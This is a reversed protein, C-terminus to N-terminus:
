PASWRRCPTCSLLRLEPLMPLSIRFRPPYALLSLRTPQATHDGHQYVLRRRTMPLTNRTKSVITSGPKNALIPAIIQKAPNSTLPQQPCLPFSCAVM